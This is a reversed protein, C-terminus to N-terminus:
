PIKVDSHDGIHMRLAKPQETTHTVSAGRGILSDVIRHVGVIEADELVVSHEVEADVLRVRAGISSFPGVFSREIRAGRGVVVPGRITSAVIEAGEDVVVKGVIRSDQDVSGRINREIEEIVIRNAELLDLLKGTDVWPTSLVHPHVREGRDVLWQIADTIELEGRKSPEIARVAEHIGPQFLYVGVLALDSPPDKPKEVLRVLTGDAALEAVGFQQPNEVKTLLVLAEPREHEFEEVFSAIGGIVLNDGLYMVFPEDGLFDRAILVAHALGRPEDQPLYTVSLGFQSGDGVAAEIDSATDGVVIGVDRIGAGAIAELGFFLIPKNALPVLQKASTYTIPRLRTGAGGALVLAKM